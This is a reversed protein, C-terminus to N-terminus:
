ANEAKKVRVHKDLYKMLVRRDLSKFEVIKQNKLQFRIVDTDFFRHKYEYNLIEDYYLLYSEDPIEELHFIMFDHSFEIVTENKSFFLSFLAIALFIMGIVFYRKQFLLVVGVACLFLMALIPKSKIQGEIEYNKPLNRNKYQNSRIKM